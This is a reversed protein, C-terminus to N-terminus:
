KEEYLHGQNGSETKTRISEKTTVRTTIRNGTLIGELRMQSAMGTSQTIKYQYAQPASPRDSARHVTM